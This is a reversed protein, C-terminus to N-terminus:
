QAARLQELATVYKGALEGVDAAGMGPKYLGSGIGFGSAGALWWQSLTNLGVGGVPCLRVSAPFVARLAKLVAPTLAEGPFLKVAAAGHRLATAIESPTAAGPMSVLGIQAAADLLGADTHPSVAFRGGVAALNVLEGATFVTGAGIMARDGHAAAMAEISRFADPSNLPVEILSIGAKVLAAGIDVAEAPRIGRLIAVVPMRDFAAAFEM